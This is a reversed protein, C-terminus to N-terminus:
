ISLRALPTALCWNGNPQVTTTGLPTNGPAPGTLVVTAGPEGTGSVTLTGNPNQVVPETINVVPPKNDVYPATDTGIEGNIDTATATLTGEPVPTTSVLSWTGNPQVM